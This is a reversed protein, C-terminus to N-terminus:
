SYKELSKLDIKGMVLGNGDLVVVSRAKSEILQSRVRALTLDDTVFHEAMVPQMIDGVSIKAREHDAVKAIDDVLLMGYLRRDVIVPYATIQQDNSNIQGNIHSNIESITMNPRLSSFNRQMLEKASPTTPQSNNIVAHSKNIPTANINNTKITRLVEPGLSQLLRILFLGTFLSWIGNLSNHRALIMVIGICILSIAIANGTNISTRTAHYFDKRLHWIIARLIRGGDMPFGPLLNFCALVLNVVSLHALSQAPGIQGLYLLGNAMAYFVLSLLLSAVPGAVAIKFEDLPNQPDRSLHALGGFIYLTINHIQIGAQRAFYCHALEHILVSAFFLLVTILGLLWCIVLSLKPALAPLYVTAIAWSYVVFIIFWSADVLIPINAIRFLEIQKSFRSWM